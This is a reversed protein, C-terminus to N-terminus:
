FSNTTKILQELKQKAAGTKISERALDISGLRTSRKGNAYIATGANLVIIEKISNERKSLRENYIIKNCIEASEDVSNISLDIPEGKLKYFPYIEYREIYGLNNVDFVTTLDYLSIEDLGNQGHVVLARKIGLEKIAYAINKAANIDYAGILMTQANAPNTLPGLLNFITRHRIEKRIQAVNKMAPHYLPAYMFGIGIDEIIKKTQEPKLEVNIGLKELLDVSGFKSSVGRNCHKAITCGAGAAVFSSITSINISSRNDGGTGVIDLLNKESDINIKVMHKRMSKAASIIEEATEGRQYMEELKQKVEKEDFNGEFIKDFFQETM